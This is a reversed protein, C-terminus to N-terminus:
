ECEALDQSPQCPNSGRSRETGSTDTGYSGEESDASSYPVVLYYTNGPLPTQGTATTGTLGCLLSGHGAFDGLTGEYLGYHSANAGCAAGWSFDLDGPVDPNPNVLLPSDTAARGPASNPRNIVMARFEDNCLFDSM